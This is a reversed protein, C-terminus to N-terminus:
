KRVRKGKHYGVVVVRYSPYDKKMIDHAEQKSKAGVEFAFKRKENTAYGDYIVGNMRRIEGRQAM